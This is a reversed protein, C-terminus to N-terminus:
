VGSQPEPDDTQAASASDGVASTNETQEANQAKQPATASQSGCAALSLIMIAATLLAVVRKM